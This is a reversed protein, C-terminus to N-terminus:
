KSLKALESRLESEKKSLKKPITIKPKVYLDGHSNFVGGSSAFGLKSVKISDSAQTGKPVKITKDGRPHPITIEAGLVMDFLSIEQTLYLDNGRRTYIKSPAVTIKVYLDGSPGWGYGDDGRGTHKIYVNDKIAEPIKVTLKEKHSAVGGPITKGDKTYINGIGQCSPCVVQTQMSGFITQTQQRVRWAGECTTCQSEKVGEVKQKRTYEITKEVGLYSEEFSITISVQIDEWARPWAHAWRRAGWFFQDMVDGLDVDFGGQSFGWFGSFGGPIWGFWGGWARYADYHQKKSADSLVGYAENIEQFKETSWWKKDPHHKMALRRFATKIEDANASEEVWLVAYYDKSPDFDM